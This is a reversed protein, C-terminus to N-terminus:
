KKKFDFVCVTGAGTAPGESLFRSAKFLGHLNTYGPMFFSSKDAILTKQLLSQDHDNM